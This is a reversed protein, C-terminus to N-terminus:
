TNFYPGVEENLKVAVRGGRSTKMIWDCWIEPFGKAVLDQVCFEKWKIKDYAKEFDM